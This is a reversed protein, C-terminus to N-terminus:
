LTPVPRGPNHSNMAAVLFPGSFQFSAGLCFRHRWRAITVGFASPVGRQMMFAAKIRSVLATLSVTLASLISIRIM